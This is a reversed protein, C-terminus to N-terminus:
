SKANRARGSVFDIIRGALGDVHLLPAHGQGRAMVASARKHRALMQSLTGASLLSSNEGRIALLPISLLNAEFAEWLDPPPHSLDMSKLPEVLAPDYDPTIRGDIDRFIAQAMEGWDDDGLLPFEAGHRAKLARAAQEFDRPQPRASLYDRIRRLGEAEIVPGIDNLVASGVLGPALAPLVHLILGGRSTGIFDAHGIGLHALGQLIDQAERLINYNAPNGDWASLGRGRYDFTVVHRGNAAAIAAFPHFDRSNRSLGALCVIPPRDAAAEGYSRGYLSIGDDSTFHFPEFHDEPQM